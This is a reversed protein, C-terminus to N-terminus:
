PHHHSTNQHLQSTLLSQHHHDQSTNQHNHDQSTNQHHHHPARKYRQHLHDRKHLHDISQVSQHHHDQVTNQNQHDTNQDKQFSLQHQTLLCHCHSQYQDQHGKHPSLQLKHLVMDMMQSLTLLLPAMDMKLQHLLYEMATKLQLQLEMVTKDNKLQKPQHKHHVWHISIVMLYQCGM